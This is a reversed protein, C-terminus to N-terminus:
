QRELDLNIPERPLGNTKQTEIRNPNPGIYEFTLPPALKVSKRAGPIIAMAIRKVVIKEPSSTIHSRRNPKRLSVKTAGIELVSIM